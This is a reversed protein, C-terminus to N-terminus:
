GEFTFAVGVKAADAPDVPKEATGKSSLKVTDLQLGGSFKVGPRLAQTYGFTVLGTNNIKAKVFAAADLYTKAGVELGVTGANKTSYTAIAGAETDRNVRHYYGAQYASLSGLAKFMVSYEPASYGVAGSYSKLKQAQADFTSELGVLFGDQGFVADAQVSQGTLADAILRGHLGPQRYFVSATAAKSGKDPNLLGLLEFKLGKAGYGEAEINTKLSNNTLWTQTLAIGNKVDVYKGEVEGLILNKANDQAIKALFNVGNPARTKVEVTSVGLPFDKSLLDNTAKGLDKYSPPVPASM